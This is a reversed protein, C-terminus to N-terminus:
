IPTSIGAIHTRKAHAKSNGLAVGTGLLLLAAAVM